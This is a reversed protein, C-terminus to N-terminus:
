RLTVETGRLMPAFLLVGLDSVEGSSQGLQAALLGRALDAEDASGAESSMEFGPVTRMTGKGTPRNVGDDFNPIDRFPNAQTYPPNPLAGCHPGRKERLVPRDGQDYARPQNPIVELNIHLVFGRFAEAQAKGANVVGSVLCPFQPAYKGLVRLQQASLEGVRVLNTENKALFAGTVDSFRAVDTFLKNVDKERELLTNGTTVTGRLIDALEPMVEEYVGAVKSTLKIDEILQPLQPNMKRLYGDLTELSRGVAEGRGSLATAVASLTHSLDAPQVTRLLPYLDNLAEEVETAVVTQTIRDGAKISRSEPQDPVQLAVYKEGFLTKPEIRATVNRPIIGIKDPYIGLVLEAGTGDSVVKSDLVEGVQVGRIKVDARAPLSLGITSTELTVKDYATFKKTFIAGTLWIGSAILALFVLGILKHSGLIRNM